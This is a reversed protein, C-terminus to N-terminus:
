KRQEFYAGNKLYIAKFGNNIQAVCPLTVQWCHRVIRCIHWYTVVIKHKIFCFQCTKWSLNDGTVQREFLKILCLITLNDRCDSMNTLKGGHCNQWRYNKNFLLKDFQWITLRSMYTPNYNKNFLARPTLQNKLINLIMTM